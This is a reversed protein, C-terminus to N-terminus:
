GSSGGAGNRPAIRAPTEPDRSEPDGARVSRWGSMFTMRAPYTRAPTRFSLSAPIQNIRYLHHLFCPSPNGSSDLRYELPFGIFFSFSGGRQITRTQHIRLICTSPFRRTCAVSPSAPSLRSSRPIADSARQSHGSLTLITMLGVQVACPPASESRNSAGQTGDVPQM